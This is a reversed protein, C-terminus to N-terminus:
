HTCNRFEVKVVKLDTKWPYSATAYNKENIKLENPSDEVEYKYVTGKEAPSYTAVIFDDPNGGSHFDMALYTIEGSFTKLQAVKKTNYNYAWLVNGVAYLLIPQESYFAYFRAKDLDTAVSMDITKALSKVFGGSAVYGAVRFMYVYYNGDADNMLAYSSGNNGYGNEGYVLDRVPTYKTQDLSFPSESTEIYEAFNTMSYYAANQRVFKHNTRDFFAVQQPLRDNGPYFPFPAVEVLDESNSGYRNFPNGYSEGMTMQTCAFIGQDTVLYRYGGSTMANSPGYAHPWVDKVKLPKQINGITPWVCDNIDFKEISIKADTSSSSLKYSGDKTIAWLAELDNRYRDGTFVLNEANKIGQTNDLVDAIVTTDREDMMSIFDIGCTGDEKDGFLYMGRVWPSQVVLNCSQETQLQTEKDTARFYLTYSGPKIGRLPYSLDKSQSIVTHQHDDSGLEHECLFWMCDFRNPDDGSLSGTVTVPIELTEVESIKNYQEEIGEIKAENVPHMENCGEDEVCSSFSLAALLCLLSYKKKM